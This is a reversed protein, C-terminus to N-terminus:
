VRERDAAGLVRGRFLEVLRADFQTGAGRVLEGGAAEPPMGRRYPRDAVMAEFADAIALIRAELPIDDGALGYPYGTGDPREHHALVWRAIDPLGSAEVVRAGLEPHKRMEAWEGPTLRGPKRLVDDAVGIKGIDHLLGALRVRSVRERDLGVERALDEALRAVTQSHLHTSPDRLDLAEALLLVAELNEEHAVAGPGVPIQGTFPVTRDRGMAKAAYMAQDAHDLLVEPDRGHHPFAAVGFSATVPTGDPSTIGDAVARRLREAVLVAESEPVGPLVIAFEEGGVRALFAAGHVHRSCLDAFARLARDGERHGHRDNLSKFADLDGLIVSLPSGARGAREMEETLRNQFGRRNLLGTLPDRVAADGLLDILRLARGHMVASLMTVAALSVTLALWWALADGDGDYRGVGLMVLASLAVSFLTIGLAARSTLFFWAEVGVWLYILVFPTDAERSALIALSIMVLGLVMAPMVLGPPIRPALGLVAVGVALATLGLALLAGSHAEGDVGVALAAVVLGGGLLYLVAMLRWMLGTEPRPDLIREALRAPYPPKKLADYIM